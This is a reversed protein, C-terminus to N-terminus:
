RRTIKSEILICANDEVGYVLKTVEHKSPHELMEKLDKPEDVRREFATDKSMCLVMPQAMVTVVCQHVSLFPSPGAAEVMEEEVNTERGDVRYLLSDVVNGIAGDVTTAGPSAHLLRCTRCLM